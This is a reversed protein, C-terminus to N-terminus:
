KTKGVDLSWRAAWTARLGPLSSVLSVLGFVVSVAAGEAARLGSVHFLAAAAAERVGWGSFFAPLAAALLVPPVIATAAGITLELGLARASAWFQLGSLLLLGCSLPVHVVLSRLAFLARLGDSALERAPALWRRFSWTVVAASLFLVVAGAWLSREPAGMAGATARALEPAAALAALVVVAQGSVRDLAAALMVRPTTLPSTQEAHVRESHRAVRLADGLVGFPLLQNLLASLYYEALARRYDLRVGLERAFLAWRAALLFFQGTTAAIALALFPLQLETVRIPLKRGDLAWFVCGLM